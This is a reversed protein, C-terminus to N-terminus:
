HKAHVAAIAREISAATVPEPRKAQGAGVSSAPAPRGTQPVFPAQNPSASRTSGSGCSAVKARAPAAIVSPLAAPKAGAPAAPLTESTAVVPSTPAVAPKPTTAAPSKLPPVFPLPTPLEIKTGSPIHPATPVVGPAKASTATPRARNVRANAAMDASHVAEAAQISAKNQLKLNASAIAGM